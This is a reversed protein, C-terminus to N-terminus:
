DPTNSMGTHGKHRTMEACSNLFTTKKKKKQYEKWKRIWKELFFILILILASTLDRDYADLPTCFAKCAPEPAPLTAPSSM